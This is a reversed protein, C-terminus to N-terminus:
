TRETSREGSVIEAGDRAARRARVAEHAFIAAGAYWMAAKALRGLAIVDEELRESDVVTAYRSSISEPTALTVHHEAHNRLERFRRYLGVEDQLSRSLWYLASLPPLAKARVSPHLEDPRLVGPEKAQKGPRLWMKTFNVREPKHRLHLYGNLGFAIQDFVSHFAVAALLLLGTRLDNASRSTGRLAIVQNGPLSHQVGLASLLTWRASSFTRHWASVVDAAEGATPRRKPAHLLGSL